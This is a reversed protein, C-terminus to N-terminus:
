LKYGKTTTTALKRETSKKMRFLFSCPPSSITSLFQESSYIRKAEIYVYVYTSIYLFIIM